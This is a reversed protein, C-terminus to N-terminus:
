KVRNAIVSWRNKGNRMGAIRECHYGNSGMFTVAGLGPYREGLATAVAVCTGQEMTSAPGGPHPYYYLSTYLAPRLSLTQIYAPLPFWGKAFYVLAEQLYTL